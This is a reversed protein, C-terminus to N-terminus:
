GKGPRNETELDGVQLLLGGLQGTKEVLIVDLNMDALAQAASLGAIGGGVVLIKRTLSSEIEEQPELGASKAVGMRILEKAKQTALDRKGMHVWSCQDRINVMEFLYPNLGAEGCSSSFLPHHTRPSCSAVVVRTLDQERIAKKIESIGSESCTYLNEKVFVM